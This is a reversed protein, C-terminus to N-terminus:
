RRRSRVPHAARGGSGGSGGSGNRRDTAASVGGGGGTHTDPRWRVPASAVPAPFAGGAWAWMIRSAVCVGIRRARRWVLASAARGGRRRLARLRAKTPPTASLETRLPRIARSAPKSCSKMGGHGPSPPDRRM